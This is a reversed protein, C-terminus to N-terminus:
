LIGQREMWELLVRRCGAGLKEARKSWFYAELREKHAKPLRISFPLLDGSDDSIVDSEASRSPKDMQDFLDKSSERKSM